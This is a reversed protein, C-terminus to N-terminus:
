SGLVLPWAFGLAIGGLAMKRDRALGGRKRIASLSLLGCIIALIWGIGLFFPGLIGLLLSILPLIGVGRAVRELPSIFTDSPLFKDEGAKLGCQPCFVKERAFVVGCNLCTTGRQLVIEKGEPVVLFEEKREEVKEEEREKEEPNKNEM